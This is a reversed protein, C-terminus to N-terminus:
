GTSTRLAARVAAALLQGAVPGLSRGRLSGLVFGAGIALGFRAWPNELARVPAFWRQAMEWREELAAISASLTREAQGVSPPSTPAANM